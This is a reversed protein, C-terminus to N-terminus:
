PVEFISIACRKGTVLVEFISISTRKETFPVEMKLVHCKKGITKQRDACEVDRACDGRAKASGNEGIGEYRRGV